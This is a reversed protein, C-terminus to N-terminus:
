KKFKHIDLKQGKELTITARKTLPRKSISRGRGVIRTKKPLSHINVKLIKIGYLDEIIKKIVVKNTKNRVIFSYKSEAEGKVAKETIVPKILISYSDM